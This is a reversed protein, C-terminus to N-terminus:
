RVYDELFEVVQYPALSTTGSRIDLKRADTINDNYMRIELVVGDINSIHIYSERFPIYTFVSGSGSHMSDEVSFLTNTTIGLPGHVTHHGAYRVATERLDSELTMSELQDRSVMRCGNRSLARILSEETKLDEITFRHEISEINSRSSIAM